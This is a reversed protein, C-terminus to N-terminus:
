WISRMWKPASITIATTMPWSVGGSAMASIMVLRIAPTSWIRM